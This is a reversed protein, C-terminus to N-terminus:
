KALQHPVITFRSNENWETVASWNSAFNPSAVMEAHLIAKLDALEVLAAFDHTWCKESFRRDVFIHGPAGEVRKVICSKIAFEVAYGALYYAADWRHADLLAKADALRREALQQWEVRTM